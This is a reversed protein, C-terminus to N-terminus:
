APESAWTCVVTEGPQVNITATAGSITSRHEFPAAEMDTCHISHFVWGASQSVETWSYTGPSVAMAGAQGSGNPSGSTTVSLNGGPGSFGFTGTGGGSTAAIIITGRAAPAPPGPAAGGKPPPAASTTPTTQPPATTTTTTTAAAAARSALETELADAWEELRSRDAGLPAVEIRYSAEATGNAPVTVDFRVVPDAEVVVPAPEFEIDDVSSALAKPIVETHSVAVPTGTSNSFTLTGDFRSGDPGRLAWGREVTAGPAVPVEDFVFRVPESPAGGAPTSKDGGRDSVAAVALIGAVVLALATGAAVLTRAHRRALLPPREERPITAADAATVLAHDLGTSLEGEEFAGPAAPEVTPSTDAGVDDADSRELTQAHEGNGALDQEGNGALDLEGAYPDTGRRITTGHRHRAGRRRRRVDAPESDLDEIAEIEEIEEADPQEADPQEVFPEAFPEAFPDRGRGNGPRKGNRPGRRKADPRVPLEVPRPAHHRVGEVAAKLLEVGEDYHLEAARLPPRPAELQGEDAADAEGTPAGSTEPSTEPAPAVAPTRRRRRM